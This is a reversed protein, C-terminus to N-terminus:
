GGSVGSGSARGDPKMDLRMSGLQWAVGLGTSEFKMAVQRGRIRIYVQGTFEEVPVTATRTVAANSDGGVSEPDNYGSGSNKLPKLTLTGSPSGATSGRFTIDPLVRRVFMFRDGDDLDFESSTISATIAAPTGTTNDDVGYEHYVLNNSYTAALPYNFLGSDRWATRALNGYYWIDEAYNYIVYRDVTASNASCYFWWVENFGESTGAFIQAYQATNIDSFIYQRLDCRLTQVRGNYTYFKDVGMWYATSNAYAAANQSIISINDGMIQAGWVEPAGLYQLSYLALDTWVLVEQRAQLATIIESGSSLRLSGAQNTAAPTWNSYDEQDSWRILMPDIYGAEYPAPATAAQGYDVVGFAFVFRYVDSVLIFNQATIADAAVTAIASQPISAMSITHTGSQSGSTTIPTGGTLAAYIYFQNTPYGNPGGLYYTTGPTLGTPLAGTTEFQVPFRQTGGFDNVSTTVIANSGISITVVNSNNLLFARGADWIFMAGGRRGFVLDQGFNAQSYLNSYVPENVVAEISAGGNGVDSANAAVGVDITLTSGVISATLITHTQNLVAATINGGLSTAKSLTIWSGAYYTSNPVPLLNITIISSGTTASVTFGTYVTSTANGGIFNYQGNYAIYQRLSTMVGILKQGRLTAWAWLSRCTGLFTNASIRQWGGIKEPTGQRFRVKDSEYWGGETTYKTGERNLGARLQLKKIPM